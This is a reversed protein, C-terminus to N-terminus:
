KKNNEPLEFRAVIASDECCCQERVTLGDPEMEWITEGPFSTCFNDAIAFDSSESNAEYAKVKTFNLIFRPNVFTCVLKTM